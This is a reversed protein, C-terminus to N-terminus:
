HKTRGKRDLNWKMWCSDFHSFPYKYKGLVMWWNIWSYNTAVTPDKIIQVVNTIDDLQVLTFKSTSKVYPCMVRSDIFLGDVFKYYQVLGFTFTQDNVSYSCIKFLKAWPCDNNSKLLVDSFREEHRFNSCSYFSYDGRHFSHYCNIEIAPPRERLNLAGFLLNREEKFSIDTWVEEYKGRLEINVLKNSPQFDEFLDEMEAANRELLIPEITTQFNYNVSENKAFHHVSEYVIATWNIPSGFECIYEPFHLPDHFKPFGFNQNTNFNFQFHRL